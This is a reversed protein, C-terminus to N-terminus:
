LTKSFTNKMTGLAEAECNFCEMATAKSALPFLTMNVPSRSRKGTPLDSMLGLQGARCSTCNAAQAKRRAGRRGQREHPATGHDLGKYQSPRNLCASSCSHFLTRPRERFLHQLVTEGFEVVFLGRFLFLLKGQTHLTSVPSSRPPQSARIGCM